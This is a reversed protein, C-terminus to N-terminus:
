DTSKSQRPLTEGRKRFDKLRSLSYENPEIGCRRAAHEHAIASPINPYDGESENETPLDDDLRDLLDDPTDPQDIKAYARWNKEKKRNRNTKQWHSLLTRYDAAMQECQKDSVEVRPDSGGRWDREAALKKEIETRRKSHAPSLKDLIAIWAKQQEKDTKPRVSLNFVRRLLIHHTAPLLTSVSSELYNLADVLAEIAEEDGAFSQATQHALHKLSISCHVSGASPHYYSFVIGIDNDTTESYINGGGFLKPPCEDGSREPIECRQFAQGLLYRGREVLSQDDSM